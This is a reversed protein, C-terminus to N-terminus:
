FAYGVQFRVSQRQDELINKWADRLELDHPKGAENRSAQAYFVQSLLYELSIRLGWSAILSVGVGAQVAHASGEGTGTMNQRGGGPLYRTLDGSVSVFGASFFPSATGSGTIWKARLGGATGDAQVSMTPTATREAGGDGFWGEVEVDPRPAIAVALGWDALGGGLFLDAAIRMRARPPLSAAAVMALREQRKLEAALWRERRQEALQRAFQQMRCRRRARAAEENAEDAVEPGYAAAEQCPDVDPVREFSSGAAFTRGPALAVPVAVFLAM